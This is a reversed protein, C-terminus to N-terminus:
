FPQYQVIKENVGFKSKQSTFRNITSQQSNFLIELQEQHANSPIGSSGIPRNPLSGCLTTGNDGIIEVKVDSNRAAHNVNSTCVNQVKVQKIEVNESSRIQGM